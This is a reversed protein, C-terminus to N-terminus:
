DGRSTATAAVERWGELKEAAQRPPTFEGRIFGVSVAHTLWGVELELFANAVLAAKLAARVNGECVSIAQDVAMELADPVNPRAEAM